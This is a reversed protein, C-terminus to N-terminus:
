VRPRKSLAKCLAQAGVGGAPPKNTNRSSAPSLSLSAGCRRSCSHPTYIKARRGGLYFPRRCLRSCWGVFVMNEDPANESCAKAQHRCRGTVKSGASSSGRRPLAPRIIVCEVLTNRALLLSSQLRVGAEEGRALEDRRRDAEGRLTWTGVGSLTGRRNREVRNSPQEGEEAERLVSAFNPKRQSESSGTRGVSPNKQDARGRRAPLCSPLQREM